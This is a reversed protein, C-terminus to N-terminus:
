YLVKKFVLNVYKKKLFGNNFQFGLNSICKKAYALLCLILVSKSITCKCSVNAFFIHEINKWLNYYPTGGCKATYSRMYFLYINGILKKGTRNDLVVISKQHHIPHLLQLM